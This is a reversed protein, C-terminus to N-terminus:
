TFIITLRHLRVIVCAQMANTCGHMCTADTFLAYAICLAYTHICAHPRISPPVSPNISPHTSIIDQLIHMCLIRFRYVCMYMYMIICICICVYMCIYIYIYIHTCLIYVYVCVDDIRTFLYIFTYIYICMHTHPERIHTHTNYACHIDLHVSECDYAHLTFKDDLNGIGRACRELEGHQQRQLGGGTLWACFFKWHGDSLRLLGDVWDPAHGKFPHVRDEILWGSIWGGNHESCGRAGVAVGGPALDASQIGYMQVDTSTGHAPRGKDSWWALCMSQSNFGFQSLSRMVCERFSVGSFPPVTEERGGESMRDDNM